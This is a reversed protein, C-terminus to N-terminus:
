IPNDKAQFLIFREIKNTYKNRMPRRTKEKMPVAILVTM